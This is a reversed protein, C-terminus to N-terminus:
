ARALLRLAYNKAAQKERVVAVDEETDATAFLKDKTASFPDDFLDTASPLVGEFKRGDGFFLGSAGHLPTKVKLSQAERNSAASNLDEFSRGDGYFLGEGFSRNQTSDLDVPAAERARLLETKNRVEEEEEAVRPIREGRRPIPASSDRLKMEAKLRQMEASAFSEDGEGRLVEDERREAQMERLGWEEDAKPARRWRQLPRSHSVRGEEGRERRAPKAAGPGQPNYRVPGSGGRIASFSRVGGVRGLLSGCGRVVMAGLPRLVLM